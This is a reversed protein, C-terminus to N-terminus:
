RSAGDREASPTSLNGAVQDLERGRADLIAARRDREHGSLDASQRVAALAAASSREALAARNAFEDRLFRQTRRVADRSDKGVIFAVEDVYRQLEQRALQRRFEVQRDREHRLLKRGVTLGV